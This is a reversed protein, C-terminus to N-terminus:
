SFTSIKQFYYFFLIGIIIRYVAFLVLNNKQLYKILWQTAIIASIFSVLFGLSLNIINQTDLSLFNIGSKFLDYMGASIITPVALLFSYLVAQDRKFGLVMMALIVAGARSVGPIIALAQSVGIIFSQLYDLQNLDKTLKIKNKKILFEIVLFLFGVFILMSIILINEEFFKNKILKYLLVGFFATPLFSVIIHKLLAKNEKVVKFYFIVVSLIAGSQIFIEFFKNFETQPIKLLNSFLILHATSSIPLFETIGEIIGLIISQFVNM